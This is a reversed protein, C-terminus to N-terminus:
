TYGVFARYPDHLPREVARCLVVPDSMVDFTVIDVKKCANRFVEFSRPRGPDNPLGAVVV